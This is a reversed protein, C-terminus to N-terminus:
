AKAADDPRRFVRRLALLGRVVPGPLAALCRYSWPVPLGAKALTARAEKMQGQVLYCRALLLCQTQRERAFAEGHAALFAPDSGWVRDLTFLRARARALTNSTTTLRPGMHEWQFSTDCAIYAGPGVGAVRAYAEKDEFIVLDEAFHLAAGAEERRVVYTSTAIYESHLEPYYMSGIHVQADEWGGPLAALSSYPVGPALIADWPRGDKHWHRLYHAEVTTDNRGSFDTFSYLVDPRAALLNRQLDLKGPFWEDDSDLFAILPRTAARVGHNRAAGAGGHPVLKYLIRDRYPALADATDDTSADDIVIVEDGPRTQALANAVARVVLKARNHTPIVVSVALPSM